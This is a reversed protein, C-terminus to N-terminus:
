FNPVGLTFTGKKRKRFIKNSSIKIKYVLGKMREFLYSLSVKVRTYGKHLMLSFFIFGELFYRICWIKRKKWVTRHFKFNLWSMDLHIVKGVRFYPIIENSHVFPSIPLATPSPFHLFQPINVKMSCCKGLKCM